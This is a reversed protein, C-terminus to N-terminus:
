TEGFGRVKRPRWCDRRTCDHGSSYSGSTPSVKRRLGYASHTHRATVDALVRESASLRVATVAKLNFSAISRIEENAQRYSVTGTHTYIYIYIYTCMCVTIM